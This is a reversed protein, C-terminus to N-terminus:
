VETITIGDKTRTITFLVVNRVRDVIVAKPYYDDRALHRAITGKLGVLTSSWGMAFPKRHVHRTDYYYRVEYRRVIQKKQKKPPWWHPTTAM